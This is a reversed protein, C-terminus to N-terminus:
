LTRSGCGALDFIVFTDFERLSAHRLVDGYWPCPVLILWSQALAKSFGKQIFRRATAGVMGAKFFMFILFFM